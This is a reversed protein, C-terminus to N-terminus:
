FKFDDDDTDSSELIDAGATYKAMMAEWQFEGSDSLLGEDHLKSLVREKQEETLWGGKALQSTDRNRTNELLESRQKITMTDLIASDVARKYIDIRRDRGPDTTTRTDTDQTKHRLNEARVGPGSVGPINKPGGKGMERSGNLHDFNVQAYNGKRSLESM